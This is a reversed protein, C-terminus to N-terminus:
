LGPRSPLWRTWREAEARLKEFAKAKPELFDVDVDVVEDGEVVPDESVALHALFEASILVRSGTRIPRPPRGRGCWMRRATARSQSALPKGANLPVLAADAFAPSADFTSTARRVANFSAFAFWVRSYRAARRGM